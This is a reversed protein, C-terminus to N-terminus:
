PPFSSLKRSTRSPRQRGCPARPWYLLTEKCGINSPAPSNAPFIQPWSRMDHGLSPRLPGYSVRVACSGSSAPIPSQNLVGPHGSGGIRRGAQEGCCVRPEVGARSAQRAGSGWRAVGQRSKLIGHRIFWERLGSPWARVRARMSGAATGRGGAVTHPGSRSGKSGKAPGEGGWEQRIPGWAASGAPAFAGSLAYGAPRARYMAQRTSRRGCWPVAGGCFSVQAVRGLPAGGFAHSPPPLEQSLRGIPPTFQGACFLGARERIAIARM